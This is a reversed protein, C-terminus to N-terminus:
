KVEEGLRRRQTLDGRVRIRHTKAGPRRRAGQNRCIQRQQAAQESCSESRIQRIGDQQHLVDPLGGVSEIPHERLQSKSTDEVLDCAQGKPRESPAKDGFLHLMARRQFLHNEVRDTSSIKGDKGPNGVAVHGISHDQGDPCVTQQIGGFM